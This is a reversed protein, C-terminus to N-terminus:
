PRPPLRYRDLVMRDLTTLSGSAPLGDEGSAYAVAGVQSYLSSGDVARAALREIVATVDLPMEAYGHTLTVTVGRLAETWARGTLRVVGAASWAFGAPDLQTANDTVSAVSSVRLSPLVLLAGGPGDLTLTETKAPAIHWGCYARVDAEARATAEAPTLPM